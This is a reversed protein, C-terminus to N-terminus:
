PASLPHGQLPETLWKVRIPDPSLGRIEFGDPSFELDPAKQNGFELAIALLHETSAPSSVQAVGRNNEGFTEMTEQLAAQKTKGGPSLDLIKIPRGRVTGKFVTGEVSLDRAM